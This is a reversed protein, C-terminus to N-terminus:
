ADEQDVDTETCHVLLKYNREEPNLAANIRFIRNRFVIRKDTTVNPRYRITILHTTEAHIQKALELERGALADVAAFPNAFAIWSEDYGAGAVPTTTKKQIEIKHRLIKALNDKGCNKCGM